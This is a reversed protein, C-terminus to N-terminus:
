PDDVRRTSRKREQQIQEMAEGFESDEALAGASRRIGQGWETRMSAPQSVVEVSEGDCLGPSENLEITKGYITGTYPKSM